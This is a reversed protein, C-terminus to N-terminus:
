NEYFTECLAIDKTDTESSIFQTTFNRLILDDDTEICFGGGSSSAAIIAIIRSSSSQYVEVRGPVSPGLTVTVQKRRQGDSNVGPLDLTALHALQVRQPIVVTAPLFLENYDVDGTGIWLIVTLTRTAHTNFIFLQTFPQFRLKFKGKAQVRRGEGAQMEFPISATEVFILEGAGPIAVSEGPLVKRQCQKLFTESM